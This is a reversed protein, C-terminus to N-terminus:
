PLFIATAEKKSLHLITAIQQAQKVTFTNGDNAMRRYYTSEDIDLAKSLESVTVGCSAMRSKLAETDIPM